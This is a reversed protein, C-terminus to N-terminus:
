PELLRPLASLCTAYTVPGSGSARGNPQDPADGTVRVSPGDTDGAADSTVRRTRTVPPLHPRLLQPEPLLPDLVHDAVHQQGPAGSYSKTYYHSHLSQSTIFLWAGTKLYNRTASHRIRTEPYRIRTQRHRIRTEPHRIRTASHRTWTGFEVCDSGSIEM